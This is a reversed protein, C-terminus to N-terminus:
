EKSMVWNIVELASIEWSDDWKAVFENKFDQYYEDALEEGVVELLICRALESPGSGGYGWNFGDPSHYVVHKPLNNKNFKKNLM